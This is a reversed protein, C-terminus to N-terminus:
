YPDFYLKKWFKPFLYWYKTITNIYNQCEVLKSNQFCYLKISVKLFYREKVFLYWHKKYTDIGCWYKIVRWSIRCFFSSLYRLWTCKKVFLKISNKFNNESSKNSMKVKEIGYMSKLLINYCECKLYNM